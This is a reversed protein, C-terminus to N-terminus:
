TEQAKTALRHSSATLEREEYTLDGAALWAGAPQFVVPSILDNIKVNDYLVPVSGM